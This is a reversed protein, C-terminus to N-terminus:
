GALIFFQFRPNLVALALIFLGFSLYVGLLLRHQHARHELLHVV